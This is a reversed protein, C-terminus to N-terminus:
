LNKISTRTSKILKDPARTRPVNSSARIKEENKNVSIWVENVEKDIDRPQGKPKYM